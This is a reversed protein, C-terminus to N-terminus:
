RVAPAHGNSYAAGFMSWLMTGGHSARRRQLRECELQRLGGRHREGLNGPVRARRRARAAPVSRAGDRRAETRGAGAQCRAVREAAAAGRARDAGACRCSTWVTGVREEWHSGARLKVLGTGTLLAVMCMWTFAGTIALVGTHASFGGSLGAIGGVVPSAAVLMISLASQHRYWFSPGFRRQQEAKHVALAELSVPTVDHDHLADSITRHRTVAVLADFPM